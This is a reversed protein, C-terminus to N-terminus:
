AYYSVLGNTVIARSQEIHETVEDLVEPQGALDSLGEPTQAQKNGEGSQGFHQARPQEQGSFSNQSVTVDALNLQQAGLMERLKPISSELLEKVGSNMATFSINAQDQQMDIRISIPGLHEPNLKIDAASINQGTMWAIKSGLEQSWESSYVHKSMAPVTVKNDTALQQGLQLMDAAVRNAFDKPQADITAAQLTSITEISNLAPRAVADGKSVNAGTDSAGVGTLMSTYAVPQGPQAQQTPVASQMNSSNEALLKGPITNQNGQAVNETTRLTSSDKAQSAAVIHTVPSQVQAAVALSMVEPTQADTPLTKAALDSVMTKPATTQAQSIVVGVQTMVDVLTQLTDQIDVDQNSKKIVPLQKGSGASVERLGVPLQAATETTVSAQNQITSIQQAVDQVLQVMQQMDVSAGQTSQQQLMGQIQQMVKQTKQTINQLTTAQQAPLAETQNSIDLKSLIEKLQQLSDTVNIQTVPTDIAAPSVQILQTIGPAPPQVAFQGQQVIQTDSGALAQPLVLAQTSNTGAAALLTSNLLPNTIQPVTIQSATTQAVNTQAAAVQVTSAATQKLLALQQMLANTFVEAVDGGAGILQNQPVGSIVASLNQSNDVGANGSLLSVNSSGQLNM